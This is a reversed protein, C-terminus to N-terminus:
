LDHPEPFSVLSQSTAMLVISGQPFPEGTRKGNNGTIPAGVRVEGVVWESRVGELDLFRVYDAIKSGPKWVALKFDGIEGALAETSKEGGNPSFISHFPSLRTIM